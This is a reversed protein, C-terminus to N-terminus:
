FNISANYYIAEESMGTNHLSTPKVVPRSYTLASNFHQTRIKLGLAAGSMYEAHCLSIDKTCNDKVTALDYGIFPVIQNITYKYISIPFNLTNSIYAASNVSMYSDKYGRVTYEDGISMNADSVLIDNTYQFGSDLQYELGVRGLQYLTKTWSLIGNYKVADMDFGNLDPDNKWASNFWPLGFNASLDGYFSGNFLIGVRTIGATLSTYRKSSVDIKSGEIRNESNRSELKVYGSTKGLGNRYIMRSIKLSERDSQGDSGYGGYYGGITKDYSSHYYQADVVWYGIPLSYSLSWSKQNDNNNNLDNFSYYFNLSDNLGLLNSGTLSSFYQAWGDAETGSNNTGVSASLYKVDTGILDLKSYGYKDSPVINLKDSGSVRLLNDLGQDVDSMDLVKDKAFPIASFLRTSDRFTPEHGDVTFGEIKGWLVKLTLVGEKLSGEHITVVTTAYGKEIYFNTLEKVLLVIEYKGMKKHNFSDLIKSRQPSNNFKDDGLIQINDIQFQHGVGAKAFGEDGEEPNEGSRIIEAERQKEQEINMQTQRRELLDLDRNSNRPTLLEAEVTTTLLLASILLTIYKMQM